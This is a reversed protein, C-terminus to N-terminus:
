LDTFPVSEINYAGVIVDQTSTSQFSLQFYRGKTASAALFFKRTGLPGLVSPANSLMTMPSTFDSQVLASTATLTLAPDGDYDIENLVKRQGPEGLTLWSTTATITFPTGNDSTLSQQYQNISGGAGNIFLWQPQGAANVNYLLSLSGGTPQWVFWVANRMDYVLHTDCYTSQQYPVSLIYLDYEGDAVFAAHALTTATPQLNNLIDQIRVGIDVYTNFDSQIVRFDPTMWIAGAPSGQTYVLQWVEQNIVGVQPHVIEPLSFNTPDNGTVRRIHYQTGIYLTQGDSQLGFVSEAGDSIDFYNSGPWAEEYKGAIFGNPLTLDDVSKSFFVSHTAGPVGAIWIRGQHKIALTGPLPPTNLSVGYEIGSQDTYLLIQNNVLTTDPTNDTYTTVDGAGGNVLEAIQYLISPDGGDATALLYKHTVQPDNNTALALDIEANTVAGTNVSPVTLDSFHGTNANYFTLYYTRGITLTVNGVGTGTIGVGNGSSGGAGGASTYVTITIDKITYTLDLDYIIEHGEITIKPSAIVYFQFGFNTNNIDAQTWTGGWLDTSSGLTVNGVAATSKATGYAINNKLMQAQLQFTSYTGFVTVNASVQIGVINPNTAVVFSFGTYSALETSLTQYTNGFLTTSADTLSLTTWAKGSGSQAVATPSDPGYVPNSSGMGNATVNNVSIGWNTVGSGANGNWKLVDSGNGDYFYQYNRSSLSRVINANANFVNSYFNGQETFAQIRGPGQALLTRLGDSDRQFSFLRNASTNVSSTLPAFGWRREIVGKTIPQVNTLAQWM